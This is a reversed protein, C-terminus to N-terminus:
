ADLTGIQSEYMRLGFVIGYVSRFLALLKQGLMSELTYNKM